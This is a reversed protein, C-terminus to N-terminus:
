IIWYGLTPVASRLIDLKQGGLDLVRTAQFAETPHFKAAELRADPEEGAVV